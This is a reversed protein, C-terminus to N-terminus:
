RQVECLIRLMGLSDYLAEVLDLMEARATNAQDAADQQADSCMIGAHYDAYLVTVFNERASTYTDIAQMLELRTPQSTQETM